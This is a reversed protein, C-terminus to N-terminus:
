CLKEELRKLWTGQQVEELLYETHALEILWQKRDRDYAHEIEHHQISVPAALSFSSTLPRTGNIAALIGPTSSYSVVAHYRTSFDFDDYTGTIRRPVNIECEPPLRSVDLRSRPHNRIMIPRDTYKRLKRIQQSIWSEQDIGSLQLSARHQAAIMIKGNSSTHGLSVGLKNPRDTDLDQTNGFYGLANVNGVSIKWTHNRQFVGADIVIIPKKQSQYHDYIARNGSMRGAWLVSWIIAGESDLSNEEFKIGHRSLAQAVAQM